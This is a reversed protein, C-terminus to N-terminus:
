GGLSRLESAADGDHQEWVGAAHALRAALEAHVEAQRRYFATREDLLARAASSLDEFVPGLSGLTALLASHDVPVGALSDAFEGHARAWERLTGLDLHLAEAM